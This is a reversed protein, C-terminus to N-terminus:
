TAFTGFLFLKWVYTSFKEEFNSKQVSMNVNSMRKRQIHLLIELHLIQFSSPVFM